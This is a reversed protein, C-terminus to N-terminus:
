AGDEHGRLTLASLSAAQPMSVCAMMATKEVMVGHERRGFIALISSLNTGM